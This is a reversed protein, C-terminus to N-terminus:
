KKECSTISEVKEENMEQLRDLVAMALLNIKDREDIKAIVADAIKEIFTNTDFIEM